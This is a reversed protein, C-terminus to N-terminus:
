RHLPPLGLSKDTDRSALRHQLEIHRFQYVAGAQRLIGRKHADALFGMLQWPLRHRLALGIRAIEYCPWAAWRLSYIASVGAGEVVGAAVGAGIGAKAGPAAGFLIGFAAGVVTGLAAVTRRDSELL